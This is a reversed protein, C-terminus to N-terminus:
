ECRVKLLTTGEKKAEAILEELEEVYEFDISDYSSRAYENVRIELLIDDENRILTDVSDNFYYDSIEQVFSQPKFCVAVKEEVVVIDNKFNISM